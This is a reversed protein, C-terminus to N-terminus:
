EKNANAKEAAQREVCWARWAETSRMVDQPPQDACVRYEELSEWRGRRRGHEDRYSIHVTGTRAVFEYAYLTEGDRPADTLLDLADWKPPSKGGDCVVRLFRPTRSLTLTVGKAPGDTFRTM